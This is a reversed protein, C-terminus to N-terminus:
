DHTTTMSHFPMLVAIRATEPGTTRHHGGGPEVRGVGFSALRAAVRSSDTKAWLGDGSCLVARLGPSQGRVGEEINLERQHRNKRIKLFEGNGM